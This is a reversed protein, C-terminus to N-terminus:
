GGGKQGSRAGDAPTPISVADIWAALPTTCGSSSRCIWGRRRWEGFPGLASSCKSQSLDDIQEHLAKLDLYKDWQDRNPGPGLWTELASLAAKTDAKQAEGAGFAVGSLLFLLVATCTTLAIAHGGGPTKRPM